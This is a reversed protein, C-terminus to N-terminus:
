NLDDIQLAIPQAGASKVADVVRAVSGYDLGVPAKIFVHRQVNSGDGTGYSAMRSEFVSRLREILKQPDGVSGNGTEFNLSLNSEMDITVILAEPNVVGEGKPEAPVRTKFSSPKMPTVVMFIILLVLLVDILPTVNIQPKQMNGRKRHHSFVQVGSPPFHERIVM